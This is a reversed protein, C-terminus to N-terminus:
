KWLPQDKKLKEGYARILPCEDDEFLKTKEMLEIIQESPDWSKEMEMLVCLRAWWEPRKAFYELAESSLSTKHNEFKLM